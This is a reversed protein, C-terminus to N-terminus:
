RRLRAVIGVHASNRFQDVLTVEGLGCGAEVLDNLDRAFTAANCSVAVIVLVESKAFERWPEAIGLAKAFLENNQKTV